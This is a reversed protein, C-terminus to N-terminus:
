SGSGSRSHRRPDALAANETATSSARPAPSRQDPVDVLEGEGPEPAAFPDQGGLPGTGVLSGGVPTRPAGGLRPESEAGLALPGPAVGLPDGLTGSPDGFARTDAPFDVAAPEDYAMSPPAYPVDAPRAGGRTIPSGRCSALLCLSLAAAALGDRGRLALWSIRTPSANHNM